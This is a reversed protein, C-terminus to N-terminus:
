FANSQIAKQKNFYEAFNIMESRKLDATAEAYIDMTTEADAHGLIDQMAKINVGAECMRTTFTHRLSHNSFRPLTVAKESYGKELVEYNCDRIIRRLAKNLTGQHQTDGFRNIFIFDTFGDIVAKCKLGIKEQYQKELLFAEKVKPLMPIIRKGAETKPTNVAFSCGKKEGKSFYVLTHNISITENELDIDCWRLGTIEGVRMGTWLLITFIPYWRHYQGDKELFSIFLEQEAVTLARRKESDFNHAKKLEKLANDSPNYRLYDDEVALELVQHLVTHISDITSVKLHQEDVLHNYFARVDTRKLDVIKSKGFNSKVFQNYMYKYNSFTNEKLGRKLQVWLEYLDNVTLNSKDVRVGDLANRLVDIEKERLEDLTKAYISHRLSKRDRWKYEYTGNARQHEGEKLVRGKNDKRREIAM